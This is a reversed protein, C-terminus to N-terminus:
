NYFWTHFEKYWISLIGSRMIYRCWRIRKRQHTEFERLPESLDTDKIMNIPEASAGSCSAEGYDKLLHSFPTKISGIFRYINLIRLTQMYILKTSQQGRLKSTAERDNRLESVDDASQIPGTKVESDNAESLAQITTVASLLLKYQKTLGM